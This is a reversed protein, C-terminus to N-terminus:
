RGVCVGSSEWVAVCRLACTALLSVCPRPPPLPIFSGTLNSLDVIGTTADIRPVVIADDRGATYPPTGAVPWTLGKM